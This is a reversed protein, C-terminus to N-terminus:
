KTLTLQCYLREAFAVIPKLLLIIGVASLLGLVFFAVGTPTLLLERQHWMNYLGGVFGISGLIFSCLLLHIPMRPDRRANQYGDWINIM